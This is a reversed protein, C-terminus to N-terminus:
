LTGMVMANRMDETNAIMIDRPPLIFSRIACKEDPAAFAFIMCIIQINISAPAKAWDAFDIPAISAVTFRVNCTNGSLRKNAPMNMADQKIERETPVETPVITARAGTATPIAVLVSILAARYPPM